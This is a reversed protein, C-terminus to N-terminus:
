NKKMFTYHLILRPKKSPDSSEHNHIAFLELGDIPQRTSVVIGNNKKEKLMRNVINVINGEYTGTKKTLVVAGDSSYQLNSSDLMYYAVLGDLYSTGFMSSTSDYSLILEAKNVVADVPLSSIDFWFVSNVSVGSQVATYKKPLLLDDGSIVHVDALTYFNLTDTYSGNKKVILNLTPQVDLSLISSYGYFGTFFETGTAPKLYIGYNAGAVEQKANKLWASVLNKDIDFSYVSDKKYNTGVDNSEYTISNLSDYTFTAFAWDSTIRHTTFGFPKTTDGISYYPTLIIKSSLIEISDLDASIKESLSIFFKILSSAENDSNKGVLLMQSSGLQLRKVFSATSVNLSDAFSDLAGFEIMDKEVLGVGVSSPDDSCNLFILAFLILVSIIINKKLM